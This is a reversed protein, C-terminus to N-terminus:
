EVPDDDEITGIGQGDEITANVGKSLNVLFRKRFCESGDDAIIPVPFAGTLSGPPIAVERVTDVYDEGAIARGPEGQVCTDSTGATVALVSVPRGSAASLSVQFVATVSDPADGEKVTLDSISLRPPEDNDVITGVIGEEQEMQPRRAGDLDSLELTFREDVEDTLDGLVEVSVSAETVGPEWILTAEIGAYDDGATATDDVTAVNARVQRGSEESLVAQFTMETSGEDGEDVSSAAISVSPPPDDDEIIVEARVGEVEYGHVETLVLAFVERNPEDLLDGVIPISLTMETTGPEFTLTGSQEEYDGGESATGEETEYEITVEDTSEASLSVPFTATRADGEDGEEVPRPRQISATVAGTGTLDVTVEEGARTAIALAASRAGGGTPHFRIRIPCSRGPGLERDECGERSIVFQDADAGGIRVDGIRITADEGNTVRVTQEISNTGEEVGPFSLEGPEV